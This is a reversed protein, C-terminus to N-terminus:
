QQISSTVDGQAVQETLEAAPSGPAEPGSVPAGGPPPGQVAAGPSPPPPMGVIESVIQQVNQPKLFRAPDKKEFTSLIERYCETLNVDVKQSAADKSINWFGLADERRSEIDDFSSSNAEIKISYRMLANRLLEKNIEWFGAQGIKKIVINDEMNEFTEQLLQYALQAIASEWHKRVEDIVSNSEFFAVRIGTATNTLAQQNRQNSTDVTFSMSQIQREFDNQEQFFAPNIERHEMEKFNAEAETVSRTTTIIANPRSQLDRPDIGSQPSWLFSRNLAHNIYESASNKKFNLEDQLSIIPEVFGVPQNVETDEFCDFDVFPIRTIRKHHIPFFLQDGVGVMCICYMEEDGDEEMQFYGYYYTLRLSNKDIKKDVNECHIGAISQIKKKYDASDTGSMEVGLMEELKDINYYEDPNRKIDGYRVGDLLEIVAPMDRMLPYRPDWLVDTWSKVDITPYEGRVNKEIKPKGNADKGQYLDVVEYKYRIKALGKGYVVGNKALYRLSKGLDYEDFIYSLYDQIGQAFEETQKQRKELAKIWKTRAEQLMPMQAPDNAMPLSAPDQLPQGNDDTLDNEPYFNDMRPTVIWRPNKAVIRPVIKEVIEHAKNVKFTTAWDARREEKYTSYAEYVTLLRERYPKLLDRYQIYTKEIEMRMREQVETSPATIKDSQEEHEGTEEEAEYVGTAPENGPMASNM